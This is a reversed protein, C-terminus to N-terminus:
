AYYNLLGIAYYAYYFKKKCYNSIGQTANGNLSHM